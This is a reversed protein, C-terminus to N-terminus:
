SAGARAMRLLEHLVIAHTLWEVPARDDTLVLRAGPPVVWPALPALAALSRREDDSFRVNREGGAGDLGHRTAVLISNTRAPVNVGDVHPFLTELTSAVAHVVDLQDGKRGVNVMVAGGENLHAAVQRYFEQTTLQFPVYPFQFADVVVLDYRSADRALFARADEEHVVVSAPLGFQERAVRAVGPDLEVAVVEANPLREAYDRASGGGGLGIVLIRKPAATTFAPAIAYYGWVGSLYARGDRRAITQAAYGENLYLTRHEADDTVRVYNYATEREVLAPPGVRVAVRPLALALLAAALSATVAAVLRRRPVRSTRLVGAVGLCLALGGCVRFTGETGLLPVLVVGCLFTGGLSGMTGLAGLRGAVLGVDDRDRTAHHVLVPSMAGLLIVPVVLMALVAALGLGLLALHGRAFHQLTLRMLPRALTPLVGLLFGAAATAAFTRRLAAPDRSWRGGLTAGVALGVLVVGILMSWVLTSTGFAPALLRGAAVEAGMVAFGGTFAAVPLLRKM